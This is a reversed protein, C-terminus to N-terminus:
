VNSASLPTLKSTAAPFVSPIMPRLPDPFLVISLSIAPM